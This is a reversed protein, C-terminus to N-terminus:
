LKNDFKNKGEEETKTLYYQSVLRVRHVYYETYTLYFQISNFQISYVLMAAWYQARNIQAFYKSSYRFNVFVSPSSVQVLTM